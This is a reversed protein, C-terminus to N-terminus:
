PVFYTSSRTRAARAVRLLCGEVSASGMGLWALRTALQRFCRSPTCASAVRAKGVVQLRHCSAQPHASFYECVSPPHKPVKLDREHQRESHMTPGAASRRVVGSSVARAVPAALESRHEFSVACPVRAVRLAVVAPLRTEVPRVKSPLDDCEISRSFSQSGAGASATTSWHLRGGQQSGPARSVSHADHRVQWLRDRTTTRTARAPPLANSSRSREVM